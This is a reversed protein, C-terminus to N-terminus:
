RFCKRHVIDPGYEDYEAKTICMASFNSNEAFIQAGLFALESRNAKPKVEAFECKMNTLKRIECKLREEFGSFNTNGGALHINKFMDQQLIDYKSISDVMLKQISFNTNLTSDTKRAHFMNELCKFRENGLKLVRGDPM